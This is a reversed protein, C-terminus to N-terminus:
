KADKNFNCTDLLYKSLLKSICPVTSYYWGSSSSMIQDDDRDKKSDTCAHKISTKIWCWPEGYKGRSVTCSKGIGGSTSPSNNSCECNLNSDLNFFIPVYVIKNKYGEHVMNNFDIIM